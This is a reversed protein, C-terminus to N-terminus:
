QGFQNGKNKTFFTVMPAEQSMGPICADDKM